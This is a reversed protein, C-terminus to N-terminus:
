PVRIRPDFEAELAKLWTIWLPSWANYNKKRRKISHYNRHQILAEHKNPEVHYLWKSAPSKTHLGFPNHTSTCQRTHVSIGMGQTSVTDSAFSIPVLSSMQEVKFCYNHNFLSFTKVEQVTDPRTPLCGAKWAQPKENDITPTVAMLALRTVNHCSINM